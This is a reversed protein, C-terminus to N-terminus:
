DQVFLCMKRSASANGGNNNIKCIIVKTCTHMEILTQAKNETYWTTREVTAYLM